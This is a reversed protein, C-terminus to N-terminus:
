AAMSETMRRVVPGDEFGRAALLGTLVGALLDWGTSHGLGTLEPIFPHISAISEGMLLRNVFEHLPAVAHGRALDMLIAASIENTASSLFEPQKVADILKMALSTQGMHDLCFLLGGVFDDGSPTLGGGLGILAV